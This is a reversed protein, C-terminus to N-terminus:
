HYVQYICSIKLDARFRTYRHHSPVSFLLLISKTVPSRSPGSKHMPFGGLLPAFVHLAQLIDKDTGRRMRLMAVMLKTSIGLRDCVVSMFSTSYATMM